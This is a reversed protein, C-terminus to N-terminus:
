LKLKNSNLMAIDVHCAVIGDGAYLEGSKRVIVYIVRIRRHLILLSFQSIYEFPGLINAAILIQPASAPEPSM